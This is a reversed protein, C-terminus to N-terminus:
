AALRPAPRRKDLRRFDFEKTLHGLLKNEARKMERRAISKLDDHGRLHLIGHVIYRVLESQWTTRFKRAQSIAEDVCIFIEGHLHPRPDPTQPRPHNSYDFTIVDTSGKHQLFTENLRTMELAAVLHIGLDAQPIDLLEALLAKIIRRLLRLDVARTRQWNRITLTHNM